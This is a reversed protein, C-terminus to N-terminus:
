IQKQSGRALKSIKSKTELLTQATFVLTIVFKTSFIVKSLLKLYHLHFKIILFIYRTKTERLPKYLGDPSCDPREIGLVTINQLDYKNALRQKSIAEM